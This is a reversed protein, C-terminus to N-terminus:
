FDPNLNVFSYIYWDPCTQGRTGQCVKGDKRITAQLSLARRQDSLRQHQWRWQVVIVLENTIISTSFRYNIEGVPDNEIFPPFQPDPMVRYFTGDIEGPIEGSVELDQIEGEFKCPKMFGSFQPQQPFANSIGSAKFHGSM